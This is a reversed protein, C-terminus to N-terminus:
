SVDGRVMDGLLGDTYTVYKPTFGGKGTIVGTM